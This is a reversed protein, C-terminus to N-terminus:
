FQTTMKQCVTADPDNKALDFLQTLTSWGKPHARSPALHEEPAELVAECLTAINVKQAEVRARLAEQLEMPDSEEAEQAETLTHMTEQHSLRLAEDARGEEEEEEEEEEDDDEPSGWGEEEAEKVGDKEEKAAAKAKLMKAKARQSLGSSVDEEEEEEEVGAAKAKAAAKAAAAEAKAQKKLAAAERPGSALAKTPQAHLYEVSGDPLKVPLGRQTVHTLLFSFCLFLLPTFILIEKRPHSYTLRHSCITYGYIHSTSATDLHYGYGDQLKNKTIMTTTMM